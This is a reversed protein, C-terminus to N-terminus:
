KGTEIFQLARDLVEDRGEQIGKITPKVEIDPVIGIRQTERRDPYYVGIGTFHTTFGKIFEFGSNNGDAGATQSGIITTNPATQFCMATWESQSISEENLLVIVKGKYYENNETGCTSGATDWIYRGPYTLDPKTYIAFTKQEKNLFKSIEEWTENPYNRMDFIIAKTEKFTTVMEAIDKVQLKGMNVYGINNQLMKIKESKNKKFLNSRAIQVDYWDITKETTKGNRTSEITVKPGFGMTIQNSLYNLYFANNSAFVLDKNHQIIEKTTKGNLKIFVDGVKIDNSAALTDNLIKTVIIKEEIIKLSNPLLRIEDFENKNLSGEIATHSDNLRVFLKRMTLHFDKETTADVLNPLMEVLSLDWKIDMLYKHPFFYEIVNWYRFFLLIRFKKESININLKNENKAFVNGAGDFAQIYFQNGQFRNKEIFILKDSLKKSFFKNNSIWLLDFNKDFYELNKQIIIPAIKRIEGLSDIWNELVLSFAEQTKAQEIKPLVEFLKEDWNFEGNAVKPHYYKLFGWVKCTSALKQTETINTQAFGLNVQLIIYLYIFIKM